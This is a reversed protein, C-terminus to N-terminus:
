ESITVLKSDNYIELTKIKLVLTAKLGLILAEYEVMNNTFDFGLKYAMPIVQNTLSVLFINEGVGHFCKSGDFYLTWDTPEDEMLFIYDDLIAIEDFDHLQATPAMTREYFIDLFEEHIVEESAHPFDAILYAITQGKIFKQKVVNIYFEQLLM